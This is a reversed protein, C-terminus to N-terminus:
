TQTQGSNRHRGHEYVKRWKAVTRRDVKFAKAINTNNLGADIMRSFDIYTFHNHREPNRDISGVLEAHMFSKINM